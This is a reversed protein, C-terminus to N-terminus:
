FCRSCGDEEQAGSGTYWGEFKNPVAANEFDGARSVEHILRADDASSLVSDREGDKTGIPIAEDNILVM